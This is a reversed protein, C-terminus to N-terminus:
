TYVTIIYKYSGVFRKHDCQLINDIKYKYKIKGTKIKIKKKLTDNEDCIFTLCKLNFSSYM